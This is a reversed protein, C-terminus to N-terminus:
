PGHNASSLLRSENLILHLSSKRLHNIKTRFHYCSWDIFMVFPLTHAIKLIIKFDDDDDQVTACCSYLRQYFGSIGTTVDDQGVHTVDDCKIRDIIKKKSYKKNM